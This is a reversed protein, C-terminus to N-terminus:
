AMRSIEEGKKRQLRCRGSAVAGTASMTAEASGCEGQDIARCQQMPTLSRVRSKRRVMSTKKMRVHEPAGEFFM